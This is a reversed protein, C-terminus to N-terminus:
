TKSEGPVLFHNSRRKEAIIHLTSHYNRVSTEPCVILGKNFSWSNKKRPDMVGNKDRSSPVRSTSGFCWYLVVVRRQMNDCFLTSRIVKKNWSFTLGLPLTVAVRAIFVYPPCLPVTQSMRLHSGLLTYGANPWHWKTRRSVAALVRHVPRLDPGLFNRSGQAFFFIEQRQHSDFGTWGRAYDSHRGLQQPEKM